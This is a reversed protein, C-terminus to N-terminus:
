STLELNMRKKPPRPKKHTGVHLKTAGHISEEALHPNLNGSGVEQCLGKEKPHNSKDKLHNNESSNTGVIPMKIIEGLDDTGIEQMSFLDNGEKSSIGMNSKKCVKGMEHIEIEQMLNLLFSDCVPGEFPILVQEQLTHDVQKVVHLPDVIGNLGHLLNHNGLQLGIDYHSSNIHTTIQPPPVCSNSM